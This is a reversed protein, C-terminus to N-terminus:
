HIVVMFTTNPLELFKGRAIKGACEGLDMARRKNSAKGKEEEGSGRKCMEEFVDRGMAVSDM